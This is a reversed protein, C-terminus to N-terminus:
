KWYKKTSSPGVLITTGHFGLLGGLDAVTEQTAVNEIASYLQLWETVPESNNFQIDGLM